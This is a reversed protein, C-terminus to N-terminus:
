MSLSFPGSDWCSAQLTLDEYPLPARSVSRVPSPVQADTHTESSGRPASGQSHIQSPREFRHGPFCEGWSHGRVEKRIQIAQSSLFRPSSRNAPPSYVGGKWTERGRHSDFVFLCIFAEVVVGGQPRWTVLLHGLAGPQRNLWPDKQPFSGLRLSKGQYSPQKRRWEQGRWLISGSAVM